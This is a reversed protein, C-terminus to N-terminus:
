SIVLYPRQFINRTAPAATIVTPMSSSLVMSAFVLTGTSDTYM